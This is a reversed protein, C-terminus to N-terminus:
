PRRNRSRQGDKMPRHCAQRGRHGVADGDRSHKTETGSDYGWPTERNMGEAQRHPPNTGDRHLQRFRHPTLGTHERFFRTFHSQSAFGLDLSLQALPSKGLRLLGFAAGLRRRNIFRNLSVGASQRFKRTFHSPSLGFDNALQELSLSAGLHADIRRVIQRMVQPSFVCADNHWNPERSGTRVALRMIIQRAAVEDGVDCSVGRKKGQESWRSLRLLSAQMMADQFIPIARLDPEPPTNEADQMGRLHAEPLCLVYARYGAGATMSVAHRAHDCPFFTIDGATAHFRIEAKEMAWVFDAAGDTTLILLHNVQECEYRAFVHPPHITLWHALWSYHPYISLRIGKMTIGRAILHHSQIMWVFLIGLSHLFHTRWDVQGQRFALSPVAYETSCLFLLSSSLYPSYALVSEGVSGKM